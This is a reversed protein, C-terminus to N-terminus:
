SKRRTKLDPEWKLGDPEYLTIIYKNGSEDTSFVLHLPRGKVVGFVLSSPFPEDDPYEEIVEGSRLLEHIEDFSINREFM